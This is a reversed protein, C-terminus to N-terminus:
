GVETRTEVGERDGEREVDFHRQFRSVGEADHAVTAAGASEVVLAM